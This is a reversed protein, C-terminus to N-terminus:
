LVLILPINGNPFRCVRQAFFRGFLLLSLVMFNFGLLATLFVGVSPAARFGAVGFVSRGVDVWVDDKADVGASPVRRIISGTLRGFTPNCRTSTAPVMIKNHASVCQDGFTFSQGDHRLLLHLCEDLKQRLRSRRFGRAGRLATEFEIPRATQCIQFAPESRNLQLV